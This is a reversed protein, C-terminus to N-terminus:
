HIERSKEVCFLDMSMKVNQTEVCLREGIQIEQQKISKEPEDFRGSREGIRKRQKITKILPKSSKSSHTKITKIWPNQQNQHTPISRTSPPQSKSPHTSSPPQNSSPPQTPQHHLAPYQDLQHHSPKSYKISYIHLISLSIYTNQLFLHTFHMLQHPQELIGLERTEINM